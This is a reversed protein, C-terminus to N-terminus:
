GLWTACGRLREAKHPDISDYALSLLENAMKYKSWPRVKGTPSTDQLIDYDAAQNKCTRM